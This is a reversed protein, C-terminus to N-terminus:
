AGSNDRKATKMLTRLQEFLAPGTLQRLAYGEVGLARQLELLTAFQGSRAMEFARELTTKM